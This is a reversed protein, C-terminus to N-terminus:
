NAPYKRTKVDNYKLSQPNQPYNASLSDALEVLKVSRILACSSVCTTGAQFSCNALGFPHLYTLVLAM